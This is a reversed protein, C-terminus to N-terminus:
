FSRFMNLIPYIIIIEVTPLVKLKGKYDNIFYRKVADEKRDRYNSTEAYRSPFGGWGLGWVNNTLIVLAGILYITM